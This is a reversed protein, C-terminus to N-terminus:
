IPDQLPLLRRAVADAIVDRLSAHEEGAGMEIIERDFAKSYESVTSEVLDAVKVKKGRGLKMLETEVSTMTVDSLGCAVIHSFWDLVSSEVNLAFGHSTIRHQIHIGISGIKHNMDTFVGTHPSPLVVSLGQAKVLSALFGELLEVYSRTTLQKVYGYILTLNGHSRFRSVWLHHM